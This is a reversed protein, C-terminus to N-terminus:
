NAIKQKTLVFTSLRNLSDLNDPIIEEAEVRIGFNSEIYGVLELVGTSDLIGKELFSDSDGLGEISVLPLLQKMLFQRITLKIVDATM